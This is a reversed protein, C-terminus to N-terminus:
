HADPLHSPRPGGGQHEDLAPHRPTAHAPRDEASERRDQRRSRLHRDGQFPGGNAQGPKLDLLDITSPGGNMWLLICSRKRRPDDATAAALRELWGSSSYGAFGAAALKMLNRRSLSDFPNM